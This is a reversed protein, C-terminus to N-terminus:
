AERGSEDLEELKQGLCGVLILCQREKETNHREGYEEVGLSDVIEGMEAGSKRLAQCFWGGVLLFNTLTESVFRFLLGM